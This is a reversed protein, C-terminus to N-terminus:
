LIALVEARDPMADGAGPRTVQIAAAASAYRLAADIEDGQDLAAVLSGAFCDGAGTTDVATVAHAPVLIPPNGSQWFEAGKAGRTVVVTDVPLDSIEVGLARCLQAAEGENLILLTVYALVERVADVNFPAASYVVEMGLGSAVRAADVQYRTENQLMLFDGIQAGELAADVHDFGQAANAGGHIVISNEAAPDVMVIAHGTPVDMRLIASTDVGAAGLRDMAVAGDRGVAGIHVVRAGALAAAISQNAGKGGLGIQLNECSITEGPVPLHAVQYVHDINISGFNYITM